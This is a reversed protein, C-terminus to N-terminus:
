SATDASPGYISPVKGGMPRLYTSLQGRHHVADFLFGWVFQGIADEWPEPMGEMTFQGKKTDWSADDCKEILADVEAAHREFAAVVEDYNSPAPTEKWEIKGTTLLSVLAKEEEALLWTLAAASRSRPEPRYELRDKPVAKLVKVFAPFEAKRRSLCFERNTM